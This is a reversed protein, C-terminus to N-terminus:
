SFFEKRIIQFPTIEGFFYTFFMDFDTYYKKEFFSFLKTSCITLFSSKICKELVRFPKPFLPTM